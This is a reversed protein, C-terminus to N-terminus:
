NKGQTLIKQYAAKAEKDEKASEAFYIFGLARRSRSDSRNGDARHITMAHHILLDGAKAMVAVENTLDDENGYDIIGQSFGSTQTRSHTRMPKLHSGKVYRVCGNEIDANELALWMTVAEPPKLMFYYGDQHPPTPRGINKPKNFYEVTKGIVKDNLLIKAIKEFKSNALIDFFYPDYVNLDQLLKLTEKNSNDEYVVHNAPMVPVVRDIFKGLENNVRDIEEKSLFDPIFVFGDQQYSEKVVNIDIKEMNLLSEVSM